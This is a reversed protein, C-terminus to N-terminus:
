SFESTYGTSELASKLADKIIGIQEWCPFFRQNHFINKAPSDNIEPFHEISVNTLHSLMHQLSICNRNCVGIPLMQLMRAYYKGRFKADKQIMEIESIHEM